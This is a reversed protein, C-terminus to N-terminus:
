GPDPALLGKRYLATRAMCKETTAVSLIYNSSIYVSLMHTSSICFFLIYDSLRYIYLIYLAISLSERILM